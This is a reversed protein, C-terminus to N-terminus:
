CCDLLSFDFELPLFSRNPTEDSLTKLRVLLIKTAVNSKLSRKYCQMNGLMAGHLPLQM